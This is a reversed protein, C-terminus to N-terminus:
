SERTGEFVYWDARASEPIVMRYEAGDIDAAYVSYPGAVDVVEVETGPELLPLARYGAFLRQTGRYRLRAGIPFPAQPGFWYRVDGDATAEPLDSSTAVIRASVDVADPIQPKSEIVLPPEEALTALTAAVEEDPKRSKKRGGSTLAQALATPPPSAPRDQDTM